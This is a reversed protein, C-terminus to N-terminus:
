SLINQIHTQFPINSVIIIFSRFFVSIILNGSLHIELGIEVMNVKFFLLPNQLSLMVVLREEFNM